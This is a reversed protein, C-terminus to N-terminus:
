MDVRVNIRIEGQSVMKRINRIDRSVKSQSLNLRRAIETQSYGRALLNILQPYLTKRQAEKKGM